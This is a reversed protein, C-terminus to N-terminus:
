AKVNLAGMETLAPKNEAIYSCMAEFDNITPVIGNIINKNDMYVEM